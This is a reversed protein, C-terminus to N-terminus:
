IWKKDKQQRMLLAELVWLAAMSHHMKVNKSRIPSLNQLRKAAESSFREDYFILPLKFNKKLLTALDRARQSSSSEVGDLRLPLGMLLMTVGHEKIMQTSHNIFDKGKQRKYPELPLAIRRERDSVALGIWRAGSDFALIAGEQRISMKRNSFM